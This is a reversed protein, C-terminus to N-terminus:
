SPQYPHTKVWGNMGQPVGEGEDYLCLRTGWGRLGGGRIKTALTRYRRVAGQGRGGSRQDRVGTKESGELGVAMRVIRPRSGALAQWSKTVFRLRLGPSGADTNWQRLLRGM